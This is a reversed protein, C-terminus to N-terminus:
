PCSDLAKEYTDKVAQRVDASNLNFSGGVWDVPGTASAAGHFVPPVKYEKTKTNWVEQGEMLDFLCFKHVCEQYELVLTVTASGQSWKENREKIKEALDKAQEIAPGGLM